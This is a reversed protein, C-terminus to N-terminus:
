RMLLVEGQYTRITQTPLHQLTLTFVYVGPDLIKGRSTGDWGRNIDSPPLDVGQWLANGWRDYISLSEILIVSADGEPIFLDNIGDYNPSFATPIYVLQEDGLVSVTVMAVDECGQDDIVRITYTTTINPKAVPAPCTECSLAFPPTWSYSVPNGNIQLGLQVPQGPGILTDPFALISIGGTGQNVQITTDARCDNGDAISLLFLGAAPPTLQQPATGLPLWTIGDLSWRWPPTGGTLQTLNIISLGCPSDTVLVSADLPDPETIVIAASRTCGSNSTVTVQYQGPGLNQQVAGSGPINWQYQFTPSIGSVTATVEGDNAGACSIDAGQYDSTIELTVQLDEVSVMSAGSITVPCPTSTSNIQSITYVGTSSPVFLVPDGPAWNSFPITQGNTGSLIFDYTAITGSLLLSAEEGPCIIPDGSLELLQEPYFSLDITVVSDCGLYSGGIITETGFPNTMSYPTGNVWITDKPCVTPNLDFTTFDQFSLDVTILSDCGYQSANPLLVLGSPHSENFLSDGVMLSSGSCLTKQILSQAPQYLSVAIQVLTDCGVPTASLLTFTDTLNGAQYWTGLINVSDTPCISPTYTITPPLPHSVVASENVLLQCYQDTISILQFLMPGSSASGCLTIGSANTPLQTSLTDLTGSQGWSYTLTYPSFGSANMVVMACKEGCIENPLTYALSPQDHFYVLLPQAFDICPDSPDLGTPSKDSIGVTLYLVQNVPWGNQWTFSPTGSTALTSGLPDGVSTYLMYLLTDGPETIPPSDFNVSTFEGPCLHLTDSVFMGPSTACDCNRVGTLTDAPCPGADDIALLYPTLSKIPDSTWISGNWSGSAGDLTYTGPIGGSLELTVVYLTDGELCTIDLEKISPPPTVHITHSPGSLAVPCGYADTMQQIVYTTTDQPMLSLIGNGGVTGTQQIGNATYTVQYPDFGSSNFLIQAVAGPCLDPTALSHTASPDNVTIVAQGAPVGECGNDDVIIGVSYTTSVSPKVWFSYTPQSSSLLPGPSGNTNIVFQFPADGSLNVTLPISDGLCIVTDKSLDAIVEPHFNLDVYVTSDCGTFASMIEVGSPNSQNYVTNNVLVSDGPCLVDDIMTEPCHISLAFPGAILGDPLAPCYSSYPSVIAKFYVTQNCLVEPVQYTWQFPLNVPVDLNCYGRSGCQELQFAGNFDPEREYTYGQLPIANVNTFVPFSIPITAACPAVGATPIAGLTVLNGFPPTNALSPNGYRVADVFSFGNWLVLWEGMNHLTLTENPFSETFCNCTDVDLDVPGYEDYGIVFFGDAPMYTDPPIQISWDGDSLVYCGLYTGPPGILEVWEGTTPNGFDNDGQAPFPQFENIKVLPSACAPKPVSHQYVLSGQGANPDFDPDTSTYWSITTGPILQDAANISFLVSSNPCVQCEGTNVLLCTPSQVTTNTVIPCGCVQAQLSLNLSTLLYVLFLLSPIGMRDIRDM